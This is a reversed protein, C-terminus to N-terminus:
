EKMMIREIEDSKVTASAAVVAKAAGAVSVSRASLQVKLPEEPAAATALDFVEQEVIVRLLRTTGAPVVSSRVLSLFPVCTTNLPVVVNPYLSHAPGKTEIEPSERVM